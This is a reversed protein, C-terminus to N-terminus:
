LRAGGGFYDRLSELEARTQGALQDYNGSSAFIIPSPMPAYSWL